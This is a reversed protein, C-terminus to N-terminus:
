ALEAAPTGSAIENRSSWDRFDGDLFIVEHGLRKLLAAAVSSRGGTVCYVALTKSQPVEDRRVYLRPYAINLSDPVRAASWESANRVDLLVIDERKVLEEIDDMKMEPISAMAGGNERYTEIMDPTAYGVINDLGIRVLDRVAEALCAEEIILYIEENEEVFSGVVTNFTKNFPASLSGPLHAMLFADRNLRADVVVVDTRGSLEGLEGISLLHPNPLDGLVRAGVRNDRKMRAFYMPPEPQGDLIAAVFPEEGRYAEQIAGNFRKEYGVTTEPVAGLAKGCASGAGHGPWIQLYDDLELFRQVSRYLQKASPVMVGQVGAASELLDPRGLDGVFVFDGSVMGMPQDAGGGFDTVLYCMHEPTHGPTHLGKLEINGIRFTDGHHLLQYSYDSGQLWEYRWDPGGEDSAYVRVGREAFERTGSLYDAHIHTDAVAVIELGEKEALRIYRDIDREPDILIAERTAQCGILYAYQALKEDVIQRFFM